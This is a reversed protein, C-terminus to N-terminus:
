NLNHSKNIKRRFAKESTDVSMECMIGNYGRCFSQQTSKM